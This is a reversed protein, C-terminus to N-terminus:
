HAGGLEPGTAPGAHRGQGSGIGSGAPLCHSMGRPLEDIAAWNLKLTTTLDVRFLVIGKM